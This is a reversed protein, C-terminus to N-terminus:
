RAVPRVSGTAPAAKGPEMIYVLIDMDWKVTTKRLRMGNKEAVRISAINDPTILSVIRTLGLPGFAHDRTARAAETALGGGWYNRALRYGIEVERKGDVDQVILGCYGIMLGSRHEVAWLGYGNERYSQEVHELMDAVQERSMPGAVSFRMVEPDSLIATLAGLDGKQFQRLILRQTTTVIM